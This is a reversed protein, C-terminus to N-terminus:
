YKLRAQFYTRAKRESLNHIYILYVACINFQRKIDFKMLIDHWNMKTLLFIFFNRNKLFLFRGANCLATYIINVLLEM